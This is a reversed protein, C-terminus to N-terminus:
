FEKKENKVYLASNHQEKCYCCTKTSASESIEQRSRLCVSSYWYDRLYKRHTIATM